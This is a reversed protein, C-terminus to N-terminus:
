RLPVYRSGSLLSVYSALDSAGYFVYNGAADVLVIRIIRWAGPWATHPLTVDIAFMKSEPPPAGKWAARKLARSNQLRDREDFFLTTQQLAPSDLSEITIHSVMTLSTGEIPALGALAEHVLLILAM